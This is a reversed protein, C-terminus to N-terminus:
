GGVGAIDGLCDAVDWASFQKSVFVYVTDKLRLFYISTKSFSFRIEEANAPFFHIQYIVSQQHNKSFVAM